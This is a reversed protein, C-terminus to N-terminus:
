PLIQFDTYEKGNDIQQLSVDTVNSRPPGKKLWSVMASLHENKGHLVAEVAGDDMNRVWGTLGLRLAEKRTADRFFVGQVLGEIRAHITQM